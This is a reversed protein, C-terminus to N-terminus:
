KWVSEGVRDWNEKKPSSGWSRGRRKCREWNEAWCSIFVDMLVLRIFIKFNSVTISYLSGYINWYYVLLVKHLTQRICMGNQKMAPSFITKNEGSVSLHLGDSANLPSFRSACPFIYVVRGKFNSSNSIRVIREKGVLATSWQSDRATIM